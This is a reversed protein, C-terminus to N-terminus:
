REPPEEWGPDLISFFSKLMRYTLGWVFHGRELRYGNFITPQGAMPRTEWDHRHGSVLPGLRTWVVEDVEHNVTFDPDGELCFVHPAILMNLPRGRPMARQQDLPGLYETPQLDLGIEELTERIAAEKLDADIKEIHGGPFAMHGSWPDGPKEARKIFLIDTETEDAGDVAERLIVAVAAQRTNERVDFEEAEHSALRQRILRIPYVDAIIGRSTPQV